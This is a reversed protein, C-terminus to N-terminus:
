KLNSFLNLSFLDESDKTAKAAKRIESVHKIPTIELVKITEEPENHLSPKPPSRPLEDKFSVRKVPGASGPKPQQDQVAGLGKIDTKTSDILKKLDEFKKIVDDEEDFDMSNSDKKPPKLTPNNISSKGKDITKNFQSRIEREVEEFNDLLDRNNASALDTRPLQALSNKFVKSIEKSSQTSLSPKETERPPNHLKDFTQIIDDLSIDETKEPEEIRARIEDHYSKADNDMLSSDSIFRNKSALKPPRSEKQIHVKTKTVSINEHPTVRSITTNIMTKESPNNIDELSQMPKADSDLFLKRTEQAMRRSKEILEYIDSNLKQADNMLKVTTAKQAPNSERKDQHNSNDQSPSEKLKSNVYEARQKSQKDTQGNFIAATVAQEKTDTIQPKDPKIKAMHSNIIAASNPRRQTM